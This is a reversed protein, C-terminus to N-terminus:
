RFSTLRLATGRISLPCISSGAFGRLQRYPFSPVCTANLRAMLTRQQPAEELIKGVFQEFGRQDVAAAAIDREETVHRARQRPRNQRGDSGDGQDVAPVSLRQQQHNQIGVVEIWLREANHNILALIRGFPWRIRAKMVSVIRGVMMRKMRACLYMTAPRVAPATLPHCSAHEGM